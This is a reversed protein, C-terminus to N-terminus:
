APGLKEPAILARRAPLAAMVADRDAASRGSWDAIEAATRFCGLCLGSEPDLFCVKICPTRIPEPPTVPM